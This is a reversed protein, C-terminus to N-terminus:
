KLDKFRKLVQKAMEFGDEHTIKPAYLKPMEGTPGPIELLKWNNENAYYGLANKLEKIATKLEDVYDSYYFRKIGDGEQFIKWTKNM